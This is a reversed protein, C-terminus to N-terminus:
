AQAAKADPKLSRGLAMGAKHNLVALRASWDALMEASAQGSTLCLLYGLQFSHLGDDTRSMGSDAAEADLLADLTARATILSAPTAAAALARAAELLEAYAAALSERSPLNECDLEPAEAITLLAATTTM